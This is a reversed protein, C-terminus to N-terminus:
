PERDSLGILVVTSRTALWTGSGAEDSAKRVRVARALHGVPIHQPLTGPPLHTVWAPGNATELLLAKVGTAATEVRLVPGQVADPRATDGVADWHAKCVLRRPCYRCGDLTPRTVLPDAARAQSVARVAADVAAAAADIPRRGRRLSFVEVTSPLRGYSYRFLHAYLRLQFKARDPISAAAEQGTKWDIVTTNDGIDILDPVGRIGTDPDRLEQECLIEASGASTLMAAIEPARVGLRSRTLRGEHLVLIDAGAQHAEIDFADMLAQTAHEDRYARSEIWQRLARHALTGANPTGRDGTTPVAADSTSASAPCGIMRWASTPSLWGLTPSSTM